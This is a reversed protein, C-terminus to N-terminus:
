DPLRTELEKLFAAASAAPQGGALRRQLIIQAGGRAEQPVANVDLGGIRSLLESALALATAAFKVEYERNYRGYIQKQGDMASELEERSHNKPAALKLDSDLSDQLRNLDTQVSQTLKRLESNSISAFQPKRPPFQTPADPLLWLSNGLEVRGGSEVKAVSFPLTGAVEMGKANIESGAGKADFIPGRLPKETKSVAPTETYPTFDARLTAFGHLAGFVIGSFFALIVLVLLARWVAFGWKPFAREFVAPEKILDFVM